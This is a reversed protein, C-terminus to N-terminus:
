GAAELEARRRAAIRPVVKVALVILVVLGAGAVVFLWVYLWNTLYTSTM